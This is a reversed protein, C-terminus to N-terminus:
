NAKLIVLEIRRNKARGEETDNAAAPRSDGYGKFKLRAAPVGAAVLYSVVSKARSESLKLNYDAAGQNDTHGSIEIVMGANTKMLDVVIALEEKSEPKLDFKDTDFFINNLVFVQKADIPTLEARVSFPNGLDTATPQFNLSRPMYGKATAFLAYNGGAQLPIFFDSVSDTFVVKGSSLEVVRVRAKLPLGTKIDSLIGAVYTVPKPMFKEPVLFQYIDLRGLGGPRDSAFYGKKGGSEIYLGFEDHPTNLGSGLNEPTSWQGDTGLRSMFIDSGGFGQHGLSSFYLTAGDYHLFPADDDDRTNIAPGMNKPMSWKGQSLYSVWLDKGGFGGPRSSAFILTHGDGSIAPQCDWAPGNVPSGLNNGRKWGKGDLDSVYLDCSGLGGPQNCRTYYLASGDAKVSLTGENEPTNIDGPAPYAKGWTTDRLDSMFFDEQLVANGSGGLRRTFVFRDGSFPMGPWYEDKDTNISPGVNKIKLNEAINVDDMATQVSVRLRAAKEKLRTSAAHKQVIFGKKMPVSDFQSLVFAAERLRKNRYLYEGYYFYMPQFEPAVRLCNRYSEAAHATDRMAEYVSAQLSFADAYKPDAKLAKNVSSLAKPFEAANFAMFAEDLHKKAKPNQAGLCASLGFLLWIGYVRIGRGLRMSLMM